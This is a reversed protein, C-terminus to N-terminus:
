QNWIPELLRAYYANCSSAGYDYQESDALWYDAVFLHQFFVPNVYYGERSETFASLEEPSALKLDLVGIPSGDSRRYVKAALPDVLTWANRWYAEAIVHGDDESATYVLRCPIQLTQCLACYVRAVEHCWDSGKAIVM